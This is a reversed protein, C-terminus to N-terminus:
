FDDRQLCCVWRGMWIVLKLHSQLRGSDGTDLTCVEFKLGTKLGLLATKLIKIVTQHM